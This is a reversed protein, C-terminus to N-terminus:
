AQALFSWQVAYDPGSFDYRKGQHNDKFVAAAKFSPNETKNRAEKLIEEIEDWRESIGGSAPHTNTSAKGVEFDNNWNVFITWQEQELEMEEKSILYLSFIEIQDKADGFDSVFRYPIDEIITIGRRPGDWWSNEVIVKNM